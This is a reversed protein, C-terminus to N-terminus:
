GAVRSDAPETSADQAPGAGGDATKKRRKVFLVSLAALGMVSIPLILTVRMAGTFCVEYFKSLIPQVKDVIEQPINSAPPKGTVEVGASAANHFGGLIQQATQPGVAQSLQDATAPAHTSFQNTLQSQLLAGVAASGIVAGLQRTTNILGSAAGAERPQINRMAITQLPAFTMGLGFGAVILGPLLGWRSEGVETSAIILGM